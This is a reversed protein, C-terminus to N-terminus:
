DHVMVTLNVPVRVSQHDLQAPRWHFHQVATVVSDNLKPDDSAVVRISQARGERDVDLKLFVRELGSSDFPIADVPVAVILPKGVIRVPTVGTSVTMPHSPTTVAIAPKSAFAAPPLALPVLLLAACLMLRM